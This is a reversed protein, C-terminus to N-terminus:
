LDSILESSMHDWKNYRQNEISRSWWTKRTRGKFPNEGNGLSLLIQLFSALHATTTFNASCRYTMYIDTIMASSNTFLATKKFHYVTLLELRGLVDYSPQVLRRGGLIDRSVPILRCGAAMM